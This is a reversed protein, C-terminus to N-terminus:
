EDEDFGRSQQTFLLQKQPRKREERPPKRERQPAAPEPSLYGVREFIM